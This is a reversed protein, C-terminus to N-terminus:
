EIAGEMLNLSDGLTFMDYINAFSSGVGNIEENLVKAFEEINTIWNSGTQQAMWRMYLSVRVGPEVYFIMRKKGNLAWISEMWMGCTKSENLYFVVVDARMMAELNVDVLYKPDVEGKVKFAMGPRFLIVPVKDEILGEIIDYYTKENFDVPGALYLSVSM